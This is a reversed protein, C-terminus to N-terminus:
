PASARVAPTNRSRRRTGLPSLEFVLRGLATLTGPGLVLVLLVGDRWYWDTTWPRTITFTATLHILALVAGARRRRPFVLPLVTWLASALSLWPALFPLASM